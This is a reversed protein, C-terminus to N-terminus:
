RLLCELVMRLWAADASGDIRVQAKPLKLHVTGPVPPCIPERVQASANAPSDAVTVPLLHIAGAEQGGLRGERYLRRWQFVQNANIGRARAVRAVSAGAALTEEVITRKQEITRRQLKRVIPTASSGPGPQISTDM